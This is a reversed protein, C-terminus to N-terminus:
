NITEKIIPTIFAAYREFVKKVSDKEACKRCVQAPVWCGAVLAGDSLCYDSGCVICEITYITRHCIDCQTVEEAPKIVKM